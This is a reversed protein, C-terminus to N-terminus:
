IALLVPQSLRSHGVASKQLFKNAQGHLVTRLMSSAILIFVSRHGASDGDAM